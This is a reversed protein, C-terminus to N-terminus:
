LRGYSRDTLSLRLLVWPSGDLRSRRRRSRFATMALLSSISGTVTESM